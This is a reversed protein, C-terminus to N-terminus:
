SGPRLLVMADLALTGTETVILPNIKIEAIEAPFDTNSAYDDFLARIAGKLSERDSPPDGRMGILARAVLGDSLLSDVDADNLPALRFVVQGLLELLIGDFGVMVLAGIQPDVRLSLIWELKAPRFVEILFGELVVNPRARAVDYAIKSAAIAGARTTVPFVMRGAETKHLLTRSVAKVVVPYGVAGAAEAAAAPSGVVHGVSVPIGIQRLQAKSGLESLAGNGPARAAAIDVQPTATLM